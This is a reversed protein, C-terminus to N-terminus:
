SEEDKEVGLFRPAPFGKKLDDWMGEKIVEPFVTMDKLEQKSFYGLEKIYNEDMGQGKINKTTEKGSASKATFYMTLVNKDQTKYILQRIYALKDIEVDLGAEDFVERKAADFLSEDGKLGGGPPVWWTFGNDPNVHKILLISEGKFILVGTSIKHKM